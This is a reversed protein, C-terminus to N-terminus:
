VAHALERGATAAPLILHYVGGDGKRLEGDAVTRHLRSMLVALRRATEDDLPGTEDSFAFVDLGHEGDDDSVASASIKLGLSTRGIHLHGTASARVHAVGLLGAIEGVHRPRFLWRRPGDTVVCVLLGIGMVLTAFLLWGSFPIPWLGSLGLVTGMIALSTWQAESGGHWYPRAVDGRVLEFAFRALGYAISYFALASGPAADSLVMVTGVVVTAAVFLAEALQIPFLRVGVLHPAFGVDAHEPGYAVGWVHPRGHCCGVMLCGIRGCALFLGLGMFVADLYRLMPQGLLWLIIASVVVVAIEHHYYVINEEGTVIKEAMVLGVFSAISAAALIGTVWLPLGQHATLVLSLTIGAMWGVLGCLHFASYRRRGLCVTARAVGDLYRSLTATATADIM